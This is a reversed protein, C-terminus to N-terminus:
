QQIWPKRRILKYITYFLLLLLAFSLLSLFKSLFRAYLPINQPIEDSIILDLSDGTNNSYKTSITVNKFSMEETPINLQIVGTQKPLLILSSNNSVSDIYKKVNGVNSQLLDIKSIIVNGTNSSTIYAKAYQKTIDYEDFNLSSSVAINKKVDSKEDLQVIFDNPTYFTLTPATPSKGRKLVAIHDNLKVGFLSNGFYEELFPDVQIWRDENIDFYEVWYHYFGDSTYGTVNSIYGLVMRSPISYHRLLSIYFDAYDIQNASLANKVTASAGNRASNGMGLELDKSLALRHIVYKYLNEYFLKRDERDLNAVDDLIQSTNLENEQMFDAVRKTETTDNIDWYGENLTLFVQEPTQVDVPEQKVIHGTIKVSMNEGKQLFYKFIYNGDEDQIASSPLPDIEDWIITQTSDDLPVVLEFTQGDNPNGNTFQRSISFSYLLNDDFFLSITDKAPNEFVVENTTGKKEISSTNDSSWSFDGKQIPYMIKVERTQADLVKSPFSYSVESELEFSYTIVIDLPNEPTIVTNKLDMQVDTTSTRNYSECKISEGNIKFCSAKIDKAQISATYLSLVRTTESTLRITLETNVTNNKIKHVFSSSINFPSEQASTHLPAFFFLLFLLSFALLTRKLFGILNKM